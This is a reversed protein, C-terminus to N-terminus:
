LARGFPDRISGEFGCSRCAYMRSFEDSSFVLPVGCGTSHHNEEAQTRWDTSAKAANRRLAEQTEFRKESKQRGAERKIEDATASKKNRKRESTEGISEHQAVTIDYADRRVKDSLVEYAENIRKMYLNARAPDDINKDPHYTQCLARYAARVVTADASRSIQLTDYYTKLTPM